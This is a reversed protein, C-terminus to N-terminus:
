PTISFLQTDIDHVEECYYRDKDDKSVTYIKLVWYILNAVKNLDTFEWEGFNPDMFYYKKTTSNYAFAVAHGSRTKKPLEIIGFLSFTTNIQQYKRNIRWGTFGIDEEMWFTIGHVFFNEVKNNTDKSVWLNIKNVLDNITEVRTNTRNLQNGLYINELNLSGEDAYALKNFKEEITKKSGKQEARYKNVLNNTVPFAKPDNSNSASLEGIAKGLNAYDLPEGNELKQRLNFVHAIYKGRHLLKNENFQFLPNLGHAYGMKAKLVFRRAWDAVMAWCTGGLHVNNARNFNGQNYSAKKFSKFWDLREYFLNKGTKSVESMANAINDVNNRDRYKSGLKLFGYMGNLLIDLCEDTKNTALYYSAYRNLNKLIEDLVQQNSLSDEADRVVMKFLNIKGSTKKFIGERITLNSSGIEETRFDALVKLNATVQDINLADARFRPM